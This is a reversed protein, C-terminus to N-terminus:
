SSRLDIVEVGEPPTFRFDRARLAPTLDVNDLSITIESGDRDTVQLRTIVLDETRVWLRVQEFMTRTSMPQLTLLRHRDGDRRVRKERQVTYREAYDTFFTEPSLTSADQETHNIIVQQDAPTYIWTTTGDTVLTQEDTEVRYKNQQLLLDGRMRTTNESFDSRIVQTFDARLGDLAEYRVQIDHLISTTDTDQAQTPPSLIVALLLGALLSVIRPM